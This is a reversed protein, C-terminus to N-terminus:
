QTLTEVDIGVTVAGIVAGNAPDVVSLSVQTQFRQTSEDQEVEGILLADPGVPYTQQWKDEDGQWYDSTVDSQGVNLGKADMVFIETYLGQSDDKLKKLYQSLANSLTADILPKSGASTETRWQQDLADIDAQSLAANKANQAKVAEVVTPDSIWGRIQGDVLEKVPADIEAAAVLAPAAVTLLAAATAAALTTKLM